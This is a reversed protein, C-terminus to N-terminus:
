KGCRWRRRTSAPVLAYAERWQRLLDSAIYLNHKALWQRSWILLQMLERKRSVYQNGTNRMTLGQLAERLRDREATLDCEYSLQPNEYSNM